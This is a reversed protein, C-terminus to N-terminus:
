IIGLASGRCFLRGTTIARQNVGFCNAEALVGGDSVHM